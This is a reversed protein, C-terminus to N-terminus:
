ERGEERGGKRREEVGERGGERWERDGSSALVESWFGVDDMPATPTMLQEMILQPWTEITNSMSLSLAM